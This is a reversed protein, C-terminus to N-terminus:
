RALDLAMERVLVPVAKFIQFGSLPDDTAEMLNHWALFFPSLKSKNGFTAWQLVGL